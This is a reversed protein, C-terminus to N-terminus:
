AKLTKNKYLVFYDDEYLISYKKDNRLHTDLLNGKYILAHDINYFDFYYQYNYPVSVYDDFIDYNLENFPKTYLDARSDIFVKIDNLLLYSGFNYENFLRIKNIDLNEKMYKVAETPYLEKDVFDKKLQYKGIFFSFTIVCIFTVIVVIRKSFFNIIISDLNIDFNLFFLYFVRNYCITGIVALLAMHRVSVISMFVLGCIMFFDSMKAKSFFTLFITEGAMIITFPSNLWGLVQHEQIYNQSNGLMTKILYTYPTTGLPTFFGTVFSLLFIILLYKIRNNQEFEFKEKIFKTFKNEKKIKNFIFAIIWEAFYPLFLIFYFIWVALHVNCILASLFILGFLYKKKGKKLFMEIFYVELAFIIYTVTQARATIFGSISLAAIFTSYAAVPVSDILKRNIKFIILILTIFLLISSIYIGTYGFLYYIVYIFIDYFWHPYTYPLNVHFSFHDLMDIGNNLILEGIKITYFTDNQFSKRVLAISFILIFIIFGVIFKKKKGDM